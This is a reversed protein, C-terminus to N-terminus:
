TSRRTQEASSDPRVPKDTIQRMRIFRAPNGSHIECDPLDRTTVSGAGAVAGPRLTVGPCITARAGVWSGDELSIPKTVLGFTVDAWNHNGTCLYAGQSICVSSGLTVRALNDVWVDEGLWSFDGISLLWPHKVRVGPKIVVRRGVRAGFVRLVSVRFASFPIITCRLLPLGLFFWLAQILRNRGPHYWSNDFKSLDVLMRVAGSRSSGPM